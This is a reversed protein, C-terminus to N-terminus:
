QVRLKALCDPSAHMFDYFETALCGVTTPNYSGIVSLGLENGLRRVIPETTILAQSDFSKPNKWVNQHYPTMLLIPEVGKNKIWLLFLRYEEIAVPDNLVGNTKYTEGGLPIPTAKALALFKASYLLSGDKLLVPDEGGLLEDVKQAEIAEHQDTINKLYSLIKQISKITYELNLLNLLKSRQTEADGNDEKYKKGLIERKAQKYENAYFSWRVDKGFAFTWADVGLVIKRPHGKVLSLYVLAFQDEISAGNVGLNLITTCKDSLAKKVRASGVQMIHSSGVVVCESESAYKLLQKKIARAEFSNEPWWMGFESKVMADAYAASATQDQHYVSAPDVFYNISACTALVLITTVLLYRLYTM